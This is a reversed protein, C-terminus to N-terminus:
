WVECWEQVRPVKYFRSFISHLIPWPGFYLVDFNQESLKRPTRLSYKLVGLLSRGGSRVYNETCAYRHVFIGNVVDLVPLSKEHQITFIHVQHGREALRKGIELFRVECGGHSPYFLETVIAIDTIIM